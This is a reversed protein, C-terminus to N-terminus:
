LTMQQTRRSSLHAHAEVVFDAMPRVNELASVDADSLSPFFRRLSEAIM